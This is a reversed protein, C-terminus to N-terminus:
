SLGTPNETPDGGAGAQTRARAQANKIESEDMGFAVLLKTLTPIMMQATMNEDIFEPEVPKGEEDKLAHAFITSFADPDLETGHKGLYAYVSMGLENKLRKMDSLRVRIMLNRGGVEIAVEGRTDNAM